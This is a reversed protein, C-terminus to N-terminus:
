GRWFARTFPLLIAFLELRGIVMMAILVCKAFPALFAYNMTAGVPGLGPGINNLTAVVSTAATILDTGTAAVLLSGLAFLLVYLAFYQLVGVRIAESVVRGGIKLPLVAQPHM